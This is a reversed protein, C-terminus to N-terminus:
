KYKDSASDENQLDELWKLRITKRKGYRALYEAKTMTEDGVECTGDDWILAFITEEDEPNAQKELKDIRKKITM